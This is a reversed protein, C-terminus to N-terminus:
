GAGPAAFRAVTGGKDAIKKLLDRQEKAVALHEEPVRDKGVAGAQLRRTVDTASMFEAHIEPAKLNALAAAAAAQQRTKGKIVGAETETEAEKAISAFAARAVELAQADTYRGTEVLRRRIRETGVGPVTRRGLARDTLLLNKIEEEAARATAEAREKLWAEHKKLNDQNAKEIAENRKGAADAVAKNEKELAKVSEKFEPSAEHFAERFDPSLYPSVHGIAGAEGKQAAAFELQLQAIDHEQDKASRGPNAERYRRIVDAEVDAGGGQAKVAETFARGRVEQETGVVKATEASAKKGAEALKDAASSALGIAEALGRYYNTLEGVPGELASGKVLAQFKDWHEYLQYAAVSAIAIPGAIGQLGPISSLLPAINNAIGKFGYQLDDVAYGVQILANSWSGARGLARDTQQLAAQTRALDASQAKIAATLRQVDADAAVNAVGFSRLSAIHAALAQEDARIADTLRRVRDEGEVKQIILYEETPM